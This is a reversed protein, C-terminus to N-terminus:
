KKIAKIQGKHFAIMVMDGVEIDRGFYQAETGDDVTVHTKYYVEGTTNSHKKEIHNVSIVRRM